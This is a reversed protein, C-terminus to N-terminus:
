RFIAHLCKFFHVFVRTSHYHVYLLIDDKSRYTNFLPAKLGPLFAFRLTVLRTHISKQKSLTIKCGSSFNGLVSRYIEFIRESTGRRGTHM